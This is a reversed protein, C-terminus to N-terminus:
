EAFGGIGVLELGIRAVIDAKGAGPRQNHIAGGHGSVRSQFVAPIQQLRMGPKAGPGVVERVHEANQLSGDPRPRHSWGKPSGTSNRCAAACASRAAANAGNWSIRAMGARSWFWDPWGCM